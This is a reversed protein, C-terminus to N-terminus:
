SLKAIEESLQIWEEELAPIARKLSAFESLASEFGDRESYFEPEAMKAVLEDYRTQATTLEEEV